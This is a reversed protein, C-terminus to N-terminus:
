IFGPNRNIGVIMNHGQAGTGIVTFVTNHYMCATCFLYLLLLFGGLPECGPPKKSSSSLLFFILILNYPYISSLQSIKSFLLNAKVLWM